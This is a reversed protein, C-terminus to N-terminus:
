RPSAIAPKGLRNVIVPGPLGDTSLLMSGEISCCTSHIASRCRGRAARAAEAPDLRGRAASSAQTACTLSTASAVSNGDQLEQYTPALTGPLGRTKM